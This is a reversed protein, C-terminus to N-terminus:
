GGFTPKLATLYSAALAIEKAKDVEMDSLAKDRASTLQAENLDYSRLEQSQDAYSRSLNQQYDGVFNQMARGYVGSQVGGAALGRKGYSATLSPAGRWSARCGSCTPTTWM